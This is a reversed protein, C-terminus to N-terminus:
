SAATPSGPWLAHAEKRKTEHPAAPLASGAPGESSNTQLTVASTLLNLAWLEPEECQPSTLVHCGPGVVWLRERIHKIYCTNVEEFAATQRKLLNFARGNFGATPVLM